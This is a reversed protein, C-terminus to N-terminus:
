VVACDRWTDRWRLANGWALIHHGKLAQQFGHFRIIM